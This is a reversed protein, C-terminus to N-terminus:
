SCNRFINFHKLLRQGQRVAFSLNLIQNYYICIKCLIWIGINPELMVYSGYFMESPTKTPFYNDQKVQQNNKCFAEDFIYSILTFKVSNNRSNLFM